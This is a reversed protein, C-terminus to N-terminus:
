RVTLPPGVPNVEVSEGQTAPFFMCDIQPHNGEKVFFRKSGFKRELIKVNAELNGFALSCESIDQSRFTCGSRCLARM